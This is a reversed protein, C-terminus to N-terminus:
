WRQRWQRFWEAMGDSIWLINTAAQKATRSQRIIATSLAGLIFGGIVDSFYHLRCIIRSSGLVVSWILFPIGWGNKRSLLMFSAAMANMSHNSPFSANDKPPILPLCDPHRVFPRRRHWIHGIIWSIGSGAAVSFLCYLLTRRRYLREQVAGPRLWEIIGYLLFLMYGFRAIWTFIYQIRKQHTSYAQIVALIYKM